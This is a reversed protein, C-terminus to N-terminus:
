FEEGALPAPLRIVGRFRRPDWHATSNLVQVTVCTHLRCPYNATPGAFPVPPGSRGCCTIFIKKGRRAREQRTAHLLTHTRHVHARPPPLSSRRPSSFPLASLILSRAASPFLSRTLFHVLFLIFPLFNSSPPQLSLQLFRAPLPHLDFISLSQILLHALSLIFLLCFTLSFITSLTRSFLLPFVLFCIM